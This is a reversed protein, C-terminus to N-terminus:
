SVRQGALQGTDAMPSRCLWLVIGFAALVIGATCGALQLRSHIAQTYPAANGDGALTDLYGRVLGYPTLVSGVAVVIGVALMAMLFHWLRFHGPTRM